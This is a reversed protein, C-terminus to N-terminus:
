AAPVAGADIRPRSRLGGEDFRKTFKTLMCWSDTGEHNGREAASHRESYYPAVRHGDSLQRLNATPSGISSGSRSSRLCAGLLPTKTTAAILPRIGNRTSRRSAIGTV